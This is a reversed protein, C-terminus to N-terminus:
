VKLNKSLKLVSPKISIIKQEQMSKDAYFGILHGYISDEISTCSISVSKGQIFRVFDEVLRLDGGAHGGFGGYMDGEADLKIIEESYEHGVRTDIHRIVFCNEDLIGQIEGITGILHISRMPRSVGGIMNHTATCGDKFEILVSQHDVVNNNCRWVCRGYPSNKKLTEIKQEITPNKVNEIDTWVYFGWREPHEIYHKRASYLCIPEIACDLLCRTGASKPIKKHSFQMLGGFSSVSIPKIGSKMWVILDLDHCCKSMLMSSKAKNKNNWKGRVFAVAMHHYSVHETTQINIIEGIENNKIRQRIASYFPAYRLVHCVMIKRKNKRCAKILKWMEKENTAFPKELLIHYGASLLVLSTPVHESDMTGNIAVDAIRSHKSLEEASKFCQSSSLKYIDAVMKRRFENPEAVGVIKLEEPHYQSYSAYLMARHGAGVIVATVLKERM